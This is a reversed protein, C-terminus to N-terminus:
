PEIAKKLTLRNMVKTKPYEASSLPLNLSIPVDPFWKDSARLVYGVRVFAQEKNRLRGDVKGASMLADDEFSSFKEGRELNISKEEGGAVHFICIMGRM